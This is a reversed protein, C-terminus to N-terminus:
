PYKTSSAENRDWKESILREIAALNLLAKPVFSRVSVYEQEKGTQADSESCHANDGAPGLGDLTPFTEWLFNGDSLGGRQESIVKMGIQNAIDQWLTFLRETASNVPWPNTKEIIEIEIKCPFGDQSQITSLNALAMMKGIGEEFIDPSFARMEVEAEAFHPVRNVVTGGHVTGVNFTIQKSYDTLNAIAPIINALQVIANAGLHHNNGSHASKGFAKLKFYARGKRAVVLKFQDEEVNGAEFILCALTSEPLKQLCAASFDLSLVEESANFCLQWNVSSFLGPKFKQLLELVMLMMVTGGKIDITGPGYVRNGEIRWHFQNKQEEEPSYVTDLHSILAITPLSSKTSSTEANRFLFLHNGFTPNTSPVTSPKFGLPSFIEATLAGVQNVGVKNATFSNIEVLRHLIELYFPLKSTLYQNLEALENRKM